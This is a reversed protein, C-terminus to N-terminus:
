SPKRELTREDPILALATQKSVIGELSMRCASKLVAEGRTAEFGASESISSRLRFFILDDSKGDSLAAAACTVFSDDAAPIAVPALKLRQHGACISAIM